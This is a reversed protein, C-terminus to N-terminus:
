HIIGRIWVSFSRPLALVAMGELWGILLGGLADSLYHRGMAVRSIAVVFAMLMAAYQYKPYFATCLAAIM